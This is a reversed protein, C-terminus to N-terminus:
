ARRRAMFWASLGALGLIYGIGGLIDQLRIRQELRAIDERLLRLADADATGGAAVRVAEAESRHGEDGDVVIRYRPLPPVAIRFRGDAGSSGQALTAGTAPDLVDVFLGAAATQDSYRAQGVVAEDEAHASVWLGHALAPGNAALLSTGLLFARLAASVGRM